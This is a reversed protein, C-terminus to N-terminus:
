QPPSFPNVDDQKESVVGREFNKVVGLVCARLIKLLITSGTGGWFVMATQKHDNKKRKSIVPGSRPQSIMRRNTVTSLLSIEVVTAMPYQSLLSIFPNFISFNFVPFFSPSFLPNQLLLTWKFHSVKRPDFMFNHLFPNFHRNMGWKIM